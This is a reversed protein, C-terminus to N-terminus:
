RRARRKIGFWTCGMLGIQLVALCTPVEPVPTEATLLDQSKNGYRDVVADFWFLDGSWNMGPRSSNLFADAKSRIGSNGSAIQFGGTTQWDSQYGSLSDGSALEWAALQMGAQDATTGPAFLSSNNHVMYTLADWAAKSPVSGAPNGADWGSRLVYDHPTTLWTDLDMCATTVTGLSTTGGVEFVNFTLLGVGVSKSVGNHVVTGSYSIQGDWTLTYTDGLTLTSLDVPSAQASAGVLIVLLVVLFSFTRM